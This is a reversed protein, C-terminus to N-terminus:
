DVGHGLFALGNAFVNNVNIQGELLGVLGSISQGFMQVRSKERPDHLLDVSLDGFVHAIFCLGASILLLVAENAEEIDKSKFNEGFITKLLQANVVGVLLKLLLEILVHESQLLVLILLFSNFPLSDVELIVLVGDVEYLV